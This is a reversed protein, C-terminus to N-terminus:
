CGLFPNLRNTRMVFQIKRNMDENYIAKCKEFNVRRRAQFPKEYRRTRRYQDFWGESGMIRNVVRCAEEVNNDQVMVTRAIFKAHQRM